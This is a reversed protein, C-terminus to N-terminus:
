SYALIKSEMRELKLFLDDITYNNGVVLENIDTRGLIFDSVAIRAKDYMNRFTGLYRMTVRQDSHNLLGQIKTIANMDISSKDACAAINAFSNRMTHSGIVLPLNLAKGADSLIKWGYEKRMKGKTKKSIFIYNDMVFNWGRSDFYKTLAYKVSETILCNNLKSTKREILFVRERFSLDENLVTKIKLPLLDSIRVGFSVGVTWLAWDRLKDRKLFYNQIAVFDDYSRISDAKRAKRVNDAKFESYELPETNDIGAKTRRDRKRELLELKARLEENEKRLKESELKEIYDHGAPFPIVVPNVATLM